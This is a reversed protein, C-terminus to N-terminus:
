EYRLADVPDLRSARWAPYVGFFLGIAASYLVGFAMLGPTMVNKFPIDTMGQIWAGMGYGIAIGLLIGLMGGFLCLVLAELVFQALINGRTAGMAMRLGIERTRENVSVLMINMIGIGGVILSIGAIGGAAIKLITVVRNFSSIESEGTRIRYEEAHSHHAALSRSISREVTSVNVPSDAVVVIQDLYDNGSYRLQFATYPVLIYRASTDQFFPSTTELVGIVRVRGGVIRFERGIPNADGYLDRALDAGIVAVREAGKLDDEGILRGRSLKWNRTLPYHMNSGIFSAGSSVGGSQVTVQGNVIPIVYQVHPLRQFRDADAATIFERWNRLIWSRGIREHTSPPNIRIHSSANMDQFQRMVTNRLGDGMSIVGTVSGVSILIGLISLFARMKHLRLQDLGVIVPEFLNM